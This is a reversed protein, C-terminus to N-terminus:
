TRPTHLVGMTGFCCFFTGLTNGSYMSKYNDMAKLVGMARDTALKASLRLAVPKFPPTNVRVCQSHM